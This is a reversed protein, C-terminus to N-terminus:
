NQSLERPHRYFHHQGIKVTAAFKKAWRPKVWDAHYHTAGDTLSREAGNLLLKAVKGAREYAKPESITEALGDCTYSFQCAHRRGTGQHVVDCVTDPFNPSDVRNLIVETVAFQGKVSEGRAEFYLAEALCQWQKGGSKVPPLNALWARTYPAAAQGNPRKMLADIRDSPLRIMHQKEVSLVDHVTQEAQAPAAALLALVLAFVRKM